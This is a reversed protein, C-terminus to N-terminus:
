RLPKGISNEQLPELKSARRTDRCQKATAGIILAALLAVVLRIEDSTLRFM